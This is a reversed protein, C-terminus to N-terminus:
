SLYVHSRVNVMHSGYNLLSKGVSGQPEIKTSKSTGYYSM